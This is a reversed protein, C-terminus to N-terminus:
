LHVAYLYFDGYDKYANFYLVGNAIVPADFIWGLVQFAALPACPSVACGNTNFALLDNHNDVGFYILGNAVIQAGPSGAVPQSQWQPKCTPTGCGLAHLAYLINSGIIYITGNVISPTYRLNPQLTATWVPKCNWAGCGHANYVYFTGMGGGFYIYGYAIVPSMPGMIQDNYQAIWQPKCVPSGCGGARFVDLENSGTMYVEGNAVAVGSGNSTIAAQWLPSCTVSGCGLANIAFLNTFGNVFIMSNVLAAPSHPQDTLAVSWRPACTTAGCGSATYVELASSTELYVYGNGVAPAFSSGHGTTGVWLLTGTAASIAYVADNAGTIYLVGNAYTPQGNYSKVQDLWGLKLSNVNQVSITSEYPNYGIHQANFQSQAWNATMPLAGSYVNFTDFSTASGLATTVTIRGSAGHTPVLATLRNSNAIQTNILLIGGMRVSVSGIFGSGYVTIKTGPSGVIPFFYTVVPAASSASNTAARAGPLTMGGVISVVIILAAVLAKM